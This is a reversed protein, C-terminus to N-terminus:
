KRRGRSKSWVGILTAVVALNATALGAVLAFTGNAGAVDMSLAGLSPALAAAILSPMALRGMVIPYNSPGFLALPLAGRAITWIGNGAGYLLLAAAPVGFGAFLVMVGLCILMSATLLTWVPHYSRGFAMEIIRGGVQAPGILMGLAVAAALSIDRAQLMTLLHVSLITVLLAVLVLACALLVFMTRKDGAVQGKSPHDAGANKTEPPTAEKPIAFLLLPLSFSIQIAAYVFCTSRWGATEVLWASIPWCITSAFGGFLTLTTIASRAETGYIRGLTSFAPDYLSASMALGIVIWGIWFMPLNPSLGLLALGCGMLVAGGALVPRGGNHAILRGIRPSALGSVLLALSFGGVILTLPWGTDAAIPGALVTLLYYSTGWALIQTIGLGGLLRRHHSPTAVARNIADM